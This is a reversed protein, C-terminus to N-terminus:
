ASLIDNSKSDEYRIRGGGWMPGCFGKLTPKNDLEARRCLRHAREASLDKTYGTIEFHNELDKLAYVESTMRGDVMRVVLAETVEQVEAEYEYNVVVDQAHEKCANIIFSFDGSCIETFVLGSVTTGKKATQVDHWGKLIAFRKEGYFYKQYYNRKKCPRFVLRVADKYQAYTTEEVSELTVKQVCPFSFDNTFLLTYKEGNKLNAQRFTEQITMAM